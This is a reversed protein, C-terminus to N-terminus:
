AAPLPRVWPVVAYVAIVGGARQHLGWAACRNRVLRLRHEEAAERSPAALVVLAGGQPSASVDVSVWEGLRGALRVYEAALDGMASASQPLRGWGTLAETVSHGLRDATEEVAEEWTEAARPPVPVTWVMSPDCTPTPVPHMTM